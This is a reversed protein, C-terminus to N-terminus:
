EKGSKTGQIFQEQKKMTALMQNSSYNLAMIIIVKIWSDSIISLTQLM